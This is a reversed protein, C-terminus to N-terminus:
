CKNHEEPEKKNHEELWASAPNFRFRIAIVKRLGQKIPEWAYYMNTKKPDTIEEYATELVRSRFAKFDKRFSPPTSLFKHLDDLSVTIEGESKWSCLFRYLQQSYVSSLSRFEPLSLMTFHHELEFFHGKLANNFKGSIYRDKDLSLTEFMPVVTYKSSTEIEIVTKGLRLLAKKMAVWQSSSLINDGNILERPDILQENFDLDGKKHRSAITAIIREDWVSENSPTYRTRAFYNSEKVL